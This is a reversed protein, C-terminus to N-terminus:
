GKILPLEAERWARIGGALIRADFGAQTLDTAAHTSDSEKTALLLLPKTRHANLSKIRNKLEPYPISVADVIHAAQFDASERLDLVIANERNMLLVAQHPTVKAAARRLRIFEVIVALTVLVGFAFFLASHQSLFSM